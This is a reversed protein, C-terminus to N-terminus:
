GGFDITCPVATFGFGASMADDVGDGDTDIDPKVLIGVVPSESLETATITGDGNTDFLDGLQKKTDASSGPNKYSEDVREAIVRMLTGNVAAMPMAGTIIGQTMGAATVQAEVRGRSFPLMVLEGSVIFPMVVAGATRLAGDKIEGDLAIDKPSEVSIGLTEEGSFNDAPNGDQDEGLHARVRAPSDVLDDALLDLMLLTKGEALGRDAEAQLDFGEGMATLVVAFVAGLQNDVASDGDLDLAHEGSNTPIGFHNIVVQLVSTTPPPRVPGDAPPPSGDVPPPQGEQGPASDPTIMGDGSGGPRQRDLSLSCGLTAVMVLCTAVLRGTDTPRVTM